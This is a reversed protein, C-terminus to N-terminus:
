TPTQLCQANQRSSIDKKVKLLRLSEVFNEKKKELIHGNSHRRPIRRLELPIVINSGRALGSMTIERIPKQLHSIPKQLYSLGPSCPWLPM